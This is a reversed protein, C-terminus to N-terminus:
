SSEKGGQIGSRLSKCDVCGPLVRLLLYDAVEMLADPLHIGAEKRYLFRHFFGNWIRVVAIAFPNRKM